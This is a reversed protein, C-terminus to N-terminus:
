STKRLEDQSPGAQQNKSTDPMGPTGQEELSKEVALQAQEEEAHAEVQAVVEGVGRHIEETVDTKAEQEVTDEATVTPDYEEAKAGAAATTVPSLDIEQNLKPILTVVAAQISAAVPVALVMGVIGILANGVLLAIIALIPHLGVHGGLIRPSIIQDFVIQHLVINLAVVLLMFNLGGSLFSVAAVLVITILAGLYPVSYLVGAVCGLMFANPVRLLLLLAWTALGNLFAVTMLGRMYKAFITSVEAVMSQVLDRRHRPVLLLTKALILHFDKLAYFAVIPIIVIWILNSGIVMLNQSIWAGSHHIASQLQQAGQVVMSRLAPQQVGARQLAEDIGKPSRDPLYNNFQASLTEGQHILVPVALYLTVILTVLFAAYILAAGSARSWGRAELRDVVPDLVMAILFAIALPLWIDRAAYAMWAVILLILAIVLWHKWRREVLWQVRLRTPVAPTTEAM